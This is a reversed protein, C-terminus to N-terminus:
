RRKLKKKRNLRGRRGPMVMGFAADAAAGAIGISVFGGATDALASTTRGEPTLMPLGQMALAGGFILDKAKRMRKM